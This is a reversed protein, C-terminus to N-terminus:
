NIQTSDAITLKKRKFISQIKDYLKHMYGLYLLVSLIIMIAITGDILKYCNSYNVMKYEHYAEMIVFIILIMPFLCTYIFHVFDCFWPYQNLYDESERKVSCGMFYSMDAEIKKLYKYQREILINIQFYKIVTSFLAIWILSKIYFLSIPINKDIQKYIFASIISGLAGNNTFDLFMVASIILVIFLLRERYKIYRRVYSFTDKHHDLLVQLKTDKSLEM